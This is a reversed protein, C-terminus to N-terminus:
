AFSYLSAKCPMLFLKGPRSHYASCSKTGQPKWPELPVFAGAEAGIHGRGEGPVGPGRDGLRASSWPETPGQM